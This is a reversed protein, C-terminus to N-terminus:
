CRVVTGNLLTLYWSPSYYAFYSCLSLGAVRSQMLFRCGPGLSPSRQLRWCGGQNSASPPLSSAPFAHHDWFRSKIRCYIGSLISLAVVGPPLPGSEVSLLKGPINAFSLLSGEGKTVEREPFPDSCPIHIYLNVHSISGVSSM